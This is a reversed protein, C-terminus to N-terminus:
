NKLLFMKRENYFRWIFYRIFTKMFNLYEAIFVPENSHDLSTTIINFIREVSNWVYQSQAYRKPLLLSNLIFAMSKLPSRIGTCSDNEVVRKLEETSIPDIIVTFM